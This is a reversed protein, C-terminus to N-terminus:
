YGFHPKNLKGCDFQTPTQTSEGHNVLFNTKCTTLYDSGYWFKLLADPENPGNLFLGNFNYKKLPFLMNEDFMFWKWWWETEKNPHICKKLNDIQCRVIKNNNINIFFLDIFIDDDVYIRMLKWTKEIRYGFKKFIPILSTIKDFDNFLVLVDADDDWPIIGHHRVAGLLTGFAISYWINHDEFLNHMLLLGNLLKVKKDISLKTEFTEHIYSKSLYMLILFIFTIFAFFVIINM